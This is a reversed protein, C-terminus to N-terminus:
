GIIIAGAISVIELRISPEKNHNITGNVLVWVTSDNRDPEINGVGRSVGHKALVRRVQTAVKTNTCAINM